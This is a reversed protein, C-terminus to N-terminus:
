AGDADTFEVAGKIIVSFEVVERGSEEDKMVQTSLPKVSRVGPMEKLRELFETVVQFSKGRGEILGELSDIRTADVKTLWVEDPMAASVSVLWSGVVSRNSVLNRLSHIRKQLKAQEKILTRIEPRLSQYTQEHKELAALVSAQRHRADLMGSVGLGVALLAAFGGVVFAARRRVQVVAQAQSEALLNLGVSAKNMGQLALGFCAAAREIPDISEGGIKVTQNLEFSVPRLQLTSVLRGELNPLRANPGVVWTSAEVAAASAGSARLAGLISGIEKVLADLSASSPDVPIPIVQLTGGSWVIWEAQSDGLYLLLAKDSAASGVDEKWINLIALPSMTVAGVRLGARRCCALREELKDQKMAAVIARSGYPNQGSIPPVAAASRSGASASGNLWQYHWAAQDLSFPLHQQLEFEVALPARRADVILPEVTTLLISSSPMGLVVGSKPKLARRLHTLGQTLSELSSTECPVERWALLKLTKGQRELVAARVATSAIELGIGISM